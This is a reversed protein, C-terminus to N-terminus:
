ERSRSRGAPRYIVEAGIPRWGAALFAVLSANNGPSVEAFCWEGEPILGIADALLARGHGRGRMETAVEVSVEWRDAIGRGLCVLGREDGFVRMERRLMRGHIVREHDELDFREALSRNGLGRKVLVVDHCDIWGGPGALRRLVDPHVIGGFGDAGIAAVEAPSFDTMVYAHGTFETVCELPSESFRPLVEVAGDVPPYRGEAVDILIELLPHMVARITWLGVARFRDGAM